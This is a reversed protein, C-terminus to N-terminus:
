PYILWLHGNEIAINTKWLTVHQNRSTVETNQKMFMYFNTCCRDNAFNSAVYNWYIVIVASTKNVYICVYIYIHIYM